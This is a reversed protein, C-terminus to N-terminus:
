SLMLSMKLVKATFNSVWEKTYNTQAMRCIYMTSLYVIRAELKIQLYNKLPTNLESLAPKIISNNENLNTYSIEM